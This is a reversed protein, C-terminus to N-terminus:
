IHSFLNNDLLQTSAHLFTMVDQTGADQFISLKHVEMIFADVFISFPLHKPACKLLVNIRINLGMVRCYLM